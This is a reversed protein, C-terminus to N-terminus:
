SAKPYFTMSGELWLLSAYFQWNPRYSPIDLDEYFLGGHSLGSMKFSPATVRNKSLLYQWTRLLSRVLFLSEASYIVIAKDSLYRGIRGIVLADLM